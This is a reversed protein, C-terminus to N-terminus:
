YDEDEEKNYNQHKYEIGEYEIGIERKIDEFYQNISYNNKKDSVFKEIKYCILRRWFNKPIWTICIINPKVAKSFYNCCGNLVPIKKFFRIFPSLGIYHLCTECSAIKLIEDVGFNLYLYQTYLNEIFDNNAPPNAGFYDSINELIDALSDYIQMEKKIKNRQLLTKGPWSM